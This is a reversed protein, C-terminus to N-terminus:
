QKTDEGSLCGHACAHQVTAMIREIDDDTPAPYGSADGADIIEQLAPRNVLPGGDIIGKAKLDDCVLLVRALHYKAIEADETM